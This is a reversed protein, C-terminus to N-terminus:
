EGKEDVRRLIEDCTCVVTRQFDLSRYMSEPEHKLGDVVAPWLAIQAEVIRMPHKDCEYIHNTVASAAEDDCPFEKNCYACYTFGKETKLREIEAAQAEIKGLLFGGYDETQYWSFDKTQGAFEGGRGTRMGGENRPMALFEEIPTQESM